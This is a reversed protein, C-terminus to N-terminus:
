PLPTSLMSVTPLHMGLHAEIWFLHLGWRGTRAACREIGNFRMCGSSM